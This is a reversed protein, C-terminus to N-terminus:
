DHFFILFDLFQPSSLSAVDLHCAQAPDEPGELAKRLLETKCARLTHPLPMHWLLGAAGVSCFHRCPLYQPKALPSEEVLEPKWM